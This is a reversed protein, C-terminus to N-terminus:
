HNGAHERRQPQKRHTALVLIRLDQRHTVLDRNQLPLQTRGPRPEGRAVPREQSGRQVPEWPVNKAPEPQQHPRLRHQAPMPVQQRATMRGPGAGLAWAPRAGDAGHAQQHQAQRCLIRASAVAADV